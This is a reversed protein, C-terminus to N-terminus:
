ETAARPAPTPSGYGCSRRSRPGGPRFPRPWGPPRPCTRPLPPTTSCGYSTGLGTRTTSPSCSGCGNRSAGPPASRTPRITEDSSRNWGTWGARPCDTAPPWCCGVTRCGLTMAQDTSRGRRGLHERALRQRVETLAQNALRVLHWHDVVITVTPLLRRVAAAFPASPDLAVVEIGDRWAQDRAELWATVTAGSRGPMLGLLWGPRGLDLDVFSTMWPNSLRWRQEHDDFVWRVSRARTEDLGLMRVPGPATQSCAAGSLAAAKVVLARQVSWWSVGYEGAVESLARASRSAAHELRDRLRLTLRHRPPVQVSRETFVRQSCRPEPCRYRRKRWVVRPARHGVPLDKIRSERVDYPKGDVLVGCRPCAHEDVAQMVVVRRDTSTTGACSVVVFGPLDYLLSTADSM